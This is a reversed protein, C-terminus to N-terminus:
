QFPPNIKEITEVDFRKFDFNEVRTRERLGKVVLRADIFQESATQMWLGPGVPSQELRLYTGKRISALLGGGVHFNEALRVELRAVQRDAEDFWITGAMNKAANQQTDHRDSVRAKPDGHFDFALTERGNLSVRRPSSIKAVALIDSILSIREARPRSKPFGKLAMEVRKRIREQEHKDEQANLEVGNRKVLRAIQRGKVFFVEREVNTTKTVTGNKDVEDTRVIRRFTYNERIESRHGGSSPCITLVCNATRHFSSSRCSSM